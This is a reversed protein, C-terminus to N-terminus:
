DSTSFLCYRCTAITVIYHHSCHTVLIVLEINIFKRPRGGCETALDLGELGLLKSEWQILLFGVCNHLDLLQAVTTTAPNLATPGENIEEILRSFDNSLLRLRLVIRDCVAISSDQWYQQCENLLSETCSLMVDVDEMKFYRIACLGYVATNM